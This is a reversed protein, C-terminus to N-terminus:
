ILLVRFNKGRFYPYNEFRSLNNMRLFINKSQAYKSKSPIQINKNFYSIILKNTCKNIDIVVFKATKKKKGVWFNRQIEGNAFTKERMFSRKERKAFTKEAFNTGFAM